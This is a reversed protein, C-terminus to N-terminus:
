LFFICLFHRFPVFLALFHLFYWFTSKKQGQQCRKPLMYLKQKDCHSLAVFLFDTPRLSETRYVFCIKTVTVWHSLYYPFFIWNRKPMLCLFQFFLGFCVDQWIQIEGGSDFQKPTDLSIWLKSKYLTAFFQFSRNM